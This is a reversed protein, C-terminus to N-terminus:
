AATALERKKREKPMVKEPEKPTEAIPLHEGCWASHQKM